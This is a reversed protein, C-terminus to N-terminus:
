HLRLPPPTWRAGRVINLGSPTAFVETPTLCAMVTTKKEVLISPDVAWPDKALDAIYGSHDLREVVLGAAILATEGGMKEVLRRSFFNRPYLTTPGCEFYVDPHQLPTNFISTQSYSFNVLGFDIPLRRALHAAFNCFLAPDEPRLDLTTRLVLWTPLRNRCTWEVVYRPHEVRRLSPVTGEPHASAWDIIEHRQYRQRLSNTPGWHTPGFGEVHFADLLVSVESSLPCTLFMQMIVSDIM